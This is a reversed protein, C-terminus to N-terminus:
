PAVGIEAFAVRHRWGGGGDNLGYDHDDWIALFAFAARARALERHGSQQKYAAILEDPTDGRIDGYVNDGVMVMLQPQAAAIDVWIPQPKNQDLCSGVAIRELVTGEPLVLWREVPTPDGAAGAQARAATSYLWLVGVCMAALLLLIWIAAGPRPRKPENEVIM